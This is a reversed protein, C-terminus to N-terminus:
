STAALINEMPSWGTLLSKQWCDHLFPATFKHGWCTGPCRVDVAETRISHPFLTHTWLPVVLYGSYYTYSSSSPRYACESISCYQPSFAPSPLYLLSPHCCLATLRDAVLDTLKRPPPHLCGWQTNCLAECLPGINPNMYMKSHKVLETTMSVLRGVGGVDEYWLLSLFLVSSLTWHESRFPHM